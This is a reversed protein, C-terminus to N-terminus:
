ITLIKCIIYDILISTNLEGSKIKYDIDNLFEFIEILEERNYFGCSYNKIAWFQKGSLGLSEATANRSLQVDIVNRFNNILLAILGFPEVDINQIEKYVTAM